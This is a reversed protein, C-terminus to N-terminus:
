NVVMGSKETYRKTMKAFSIQFTEVIFGDSRFSFALQFKTSDPVHYHEPLRLFGKM